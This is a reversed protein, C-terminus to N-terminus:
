KEKNVIGVLCLSITRLLDRIDIMVELKLVEVTHSSGSESEQGLLMEKTKM